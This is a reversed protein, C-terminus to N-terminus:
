TLRLWPGAAGSDSDRSRVSSPSGPFVGLRVGSTRSEADPSVHAGRGGAAEGLTWAAM